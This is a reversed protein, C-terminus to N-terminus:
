LKNNIKQTIWWSYNALSVDEPSHHELFDDITLKYMVLLKNISIKRLGGQNGMILLDLGDHILQTGHKLVEFSDLKQNM